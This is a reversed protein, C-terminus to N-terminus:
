YFIYLKKHNYAIVHENLYNPLCLSIYVFFFLNGIGWLVFIVVTSENYEKRIM